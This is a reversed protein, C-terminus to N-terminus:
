ASPSRGSGSSVWLNQQRPLLSLGTRTLEIDIADPMETPQPTSIDWAIRYEQQDMYRLGKRFWRSMYPLRYSETPPPATEYSYEVWGKQWLFEHRAIDNLALWRKIGCEIEFKLTDISETVTWYEYRGPLAARLNQWAAKTLPERSLCFLYPSGIESDNIKANELVKLRANELVKLREETEEKMELNPDDRWPLRAHGAVPRVHERRAAAQHGALPELAVARTRQGVLFQERDEDAHLAHLRCAGDELCAPGHLLQRVLARAIERPDLAHRRRAGGHDDGADLQAAAGERPRPRVALAEARRPLDRREEQRVVPGAGDLAEADDAEARLVAHEAGLDHRGSRQVRAEDMGPFDEPHGRHVAGGGDHEEVVVRGVVGRRAVVVDCLRM